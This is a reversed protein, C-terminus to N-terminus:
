AEIFYQKNIKKENIQQALQKARIKLDQMKSDFKSQDLALMQSIANVYEMPKNLPIDYGLNQKELNRWPTQDSLLLVNAALISEAIVHGFNENLPPFFFAHSKSLEDVVKENQIPRHYKVRINVPIMKIMEM